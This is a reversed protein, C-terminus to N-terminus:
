RQYEVERGKALMKNTETLNKNMEILDDVQKELREIREIKKSRNPVPESDDNYILDSNVLQKRLLDDITVKFYSGIALLVEAKPWVGNEYSAIQTRNVGIIEALVEQSIKKVDRLYKINQSLYIM